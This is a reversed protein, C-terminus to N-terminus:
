RFFIVLGQGLKKGAKESLETIAAQPMKQSKAVSLKDLSASAEKKAEAVVKEQAKFATIAKADAAKADSAIKTYEKLTQEALDLNKKAVIKNKEEPALKKFEAKKAEAAKKAEEAKKAEGVKKAEAAKKDVVVTTTPAATAAFAPEIPLMTNTSSVAIMSAAMLSMAAKGLDVSINNNNNSAMSLEVRSPAMPRAMPSFASAGTTLLALVAVQFKMNISYPPPSQWDKSNTTTHSITPSKAERAV